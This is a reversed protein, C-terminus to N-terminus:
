ALALEADQQAQLKGDLEDNRALCQQIAPILEEELLTSRREQLWWVDRWEGAVDWRQWSRCRRRRASRRGRRGAPDSLSYWQQLLHIRLMTGLPYPPRGGKKSAKPYHPEILDILSQWPVVVEMESLFKERKTQKKATTLEYDSFGLQKGGM